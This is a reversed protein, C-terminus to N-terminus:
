LQDITQEFGGIIADFSTCRALEQDESDSLHTLAVVVHAGQARMEPVFRKATECPDLFDVDEGPRSTLKATPGVFGIIGVKVGDFERISFPPTDLFTKGTKKSVVNAGLWTFRSESVRQGLLDPGFDFEHNGFVAYDLGVNNWAEIMHAGKYTISEVSPSITNGALLLLTNKSENAIQRHLTKLRALGGRTGRETATMQFVDNVHLLTVRVIRPEPKHQAASLLTLLPVMLVIAIPRRFIRTLISM